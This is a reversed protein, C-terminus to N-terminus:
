GFLRCKVPLMKPLSNKGLPLFSGSKQSKRLVSHEPDTCFFEMDWCWGVLFGNSLTM